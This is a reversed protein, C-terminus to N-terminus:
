LTWHQLQKIKNKFLNKLDVIMADHNTIELFYKEGLNVYERHAVAIIVADYKGETNANLKVNYEHLVETADAHPDIIDVKVSYEKLEKILDFVKSNRIDAVNEKFTAGMILVSCQSPNKQLSLWNQIIKKAIYQPMEDNIGRGSLIIKPEYGLEMSKYTLYYPDVGICHGGVLGPQFKLFNWKTGAAELVDYTNINMKNFVQSLENMLAINLDRQTNEIVKAAEAVKVSTAKYVGPEVISSYVDAILELSEQDCGSVIKTIKTLTYQTDGPNIREPSYGYKFNTIAKLKSLNEIIPICDEETCGPYVTSEFVVYDGKKIIKGITTSAAVLPKLDPVKHEDVPTPVAVIYFSAKGLTNIDATFEIDCNAFAESKLEKSPDIKQKLLKIREESIDFGVVSFKKALELAIPLGVYGLGIVGIKKNKETLDNFM